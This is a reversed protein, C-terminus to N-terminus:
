VIMARTGDLFFLIQGARSLQEGYFLQAATGAEEAPGRCLM